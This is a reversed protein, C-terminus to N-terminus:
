ITVNEMKARAELIAIYDNMARIQLEYTSFPCTPAFNLEGAKWKDMMCALKNRRIVVQAYEAQFRVKYDENSMLEATESLETIAIMEM